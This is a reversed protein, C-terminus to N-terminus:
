AQANLEGYTLQEDEYVVAVADPQSAVQQEFLEHICLTDPYTSGTAGALRSFFEDDRDPLMSLMKIPKPEDEHICAVVDKMLKFMSENLCRISETDFLSSDYIWNLSGGSENLSIHIELDFKAQITSPPLSSLQVKPLTLSQVNEDSEVGFDSDVSLVIQFLPSHSLNRPIQLKEVIQEFPAEQNALAGLNVERVHKFYDTLSDYDTNVKLALTNAFFGIVSQLEPLERNAVPTGIVVEDNNSYRTLLLAILGHLLMFPTLQQQKAISTLQRALNKEIEGTERLGHHLKIKPRKQKLVLGHETPADKLLQEWFSLQNVSVEKTQEEQQWQAYDAYQITLEALPERKGEYFARYLTFFENKLIAVSWGDSAIHHMNFLLVGQAPLSAENDESMLTIFSARLMLDQKLNFPRNVDKSILKQLEEQQESNDLHSVDYKKVKLEVNDNVSQVTEGDEEHYVTRLIEHRQIIRNLVKEVLAVDLNGSVKMAEPMNYEASSGKLKDIFWLRQQSFSLKNFQNSTDRKHIKRVEAAQDYLKDLFVKLTDKNQVLEAKLESDLEKPLKLNVRGNEKNFIVGADKLKQFLLEGNM